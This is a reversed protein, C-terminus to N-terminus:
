EATTDSEDELEVLDGDTEGLEIAAAVEAQERSYNSGKMLDEIIKEKDPKNAM